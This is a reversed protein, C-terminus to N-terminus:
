GEDLLEEARSLRRLALAALGATLLLLGVQCKVASTVIEWTTLYSNANDRFLEANGIWIMAPLLTVLTAFTVAGASRLRLNWYLCASVTLTLPLVTQPIGLVVQWPEVFFVLVLGVVLVMVTAVVLPPALRGGIMRAPSALTVGLELDGTSRLTSVVDVSSIVILLMLPYFMGLKVVESAREGAIVGMLLAALDICVGIVLLVATRGRVVVRWLRVMHAITAHEAL